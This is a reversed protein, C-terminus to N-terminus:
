VSGLRGTSQHPLDAAVAEIWLRVYPALAAEVFIRAAAGGEVLSGYANVGAFSIAASALPQSLDISTAQALLARLAPGGIEVAVFGDSIETLVWGAARWGEEANLPQPAGLLRRDRAIALAEVAGLGALGAAVDGSLLYLRLDTRFRVQVGNVDVGAESLPTAPTWKDIVDPM